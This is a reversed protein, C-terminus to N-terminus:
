LLQKLQNRNYWSSKQPIGDLSYKNSSSIKTIVGHKGVVEPNIDVEFFDGRESLIPHFIVLEKNLYVSHGYNIVEVTDGVKLITDNM